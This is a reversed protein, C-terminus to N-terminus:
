LWGIWRPTAASWVRFAEGFGAQLAAEEALIYRRTIWLAFLPVLPWALVAGWALIAGSLVILDALYIPNRSLRFVGGTVLAAPVRRPIFSTRAVWMQALAVAMLGLGLGVLCLGAFPLPALSIVQALGWALGLALALWLPPIDLEKVM